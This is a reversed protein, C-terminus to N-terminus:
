GFITKIISISGEARKQGLATTQKKLDEEDHNMKLGGGRKNERLGGNKKNYAWGKRIGLNPLPKLYGVKWAPSTKLRKATTVPPNSVGKGPNANGQMERVNGAKVGPGGRNEIPLYWNRTKVLSRWLNRTIPGERKNVGRLSGEEFRKYIRKKTGFV